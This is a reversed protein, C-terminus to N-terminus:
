LKYQLSFVFTLWDVLEGDVLCPISRENDSNSFLILEKNVFDNYSLSKTTQSYLYDQFHSFFFFIINFFFFQCLLM